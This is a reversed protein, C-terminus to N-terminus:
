KKEQEAEAKKMEERFMKAFFGNEFLESQLKSYLEFYPNETGDDEEEAIDDMLGYVKAIAEEKGEGTLYNFGFSDKHFKQLGILLMETMTALLDGIKEADWEGDNQVSALKKLIGSQVTPQMAFYISYEAKGIKIKTM